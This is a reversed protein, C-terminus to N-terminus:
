PQGPFPTTLPQTGAAKRWRTARVASSTLAERAARRLEVDDTRELVARWTAAADTESTALLVLASAQDSVPQPPLYAPEAPVPAMGAGSIILSTNDRRARHATSAEALAADLPAGLFASALGCTWVAAHEAALARQLADV